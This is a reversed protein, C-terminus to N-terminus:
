SRLWEDRKRDKKTYLAHQGEGKGGGVLPPPYSVWENQSLALVKKYKKKDQVDVGIGQGAGIECPL